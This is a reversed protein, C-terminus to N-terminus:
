FKSVRHFSFVSLFVVIPITDNPLPYHLVPLHPLLMSIGERSVVAACHHHHFCNGEEACM